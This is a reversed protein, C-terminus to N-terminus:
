EDVSDSPDSLLQDGRAIVVDDRIVKVSAPDLVGNRFTGRVIDGVQAGLKQAIELFGSHGQWPNVSDPIQIKAYTAGDQLPLPRYDYNTPMLDM